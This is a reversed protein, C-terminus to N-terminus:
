LSDPSAAIYEGYWSGHHCPETVRAIIRTTIGLASACQWNTGIDHEM